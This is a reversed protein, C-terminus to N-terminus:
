SEEVYMLLKTKPDTVLHCIKGDGLDFGEPSLMKTVDTYLQDAAFQRHKTTYFPKYNFLSENKKIYNYINENEEFTTIVEKQVRNRLPHLMIEAVGIDAEVTQNFHFFKSLQKHKPTLSFSVHAEGDTPSITFIGSTKPNKRLFGEDFCADYERGEFKSSIEKDICSFLYNEKHRDNRMNESPLVGLVVEVDTTLYYMVMNSFNSITDSVFPYPYFYVYFNPYCHYSNEGSLNERPGLFDMELNPSNLGRFLVTGKKLTTFNITEKKYTVSKIISNDFKTKNTCFYKLKKSLKVSTKLENGYLNLFNLNPLNTFTNKGFHTIECNSLNVYTLTHPMEPLTQVPTFSCDLRKCQQPIKTLYGPYFLNFKTVFRFCLEPFNVFSEIQNKSCDFVEVAKPLKPLHSIYNQSVDLMYMWNNKPSIGSFNWIDNRNCELHKLNKTIYPVETLKNKNCKLTTLSSPLKPLKSFENDNINLFQLTEPLEPLSSLRNSPVTLSVLRSSLKPLVQLGLGRITVKTLKSIDEIEYKDDM